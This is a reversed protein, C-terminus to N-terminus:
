ISQERPYLVTIQTQEQGQCCWFKWCTGGGLMSDQEFLADCVAKGINDWDPTSRVIRGNQEHKKKESWSEPMPLWAVIIISDPNAPLRGAAARCRDAFERYRMVKPRKKWKDSRTMRPKGM